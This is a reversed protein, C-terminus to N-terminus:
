CEFFYKLNFNRFNEDILLGSFLALWLVFLFALSVLGFGHIFPTPNRDSRQSESERKAKKKFVQVYINTTQSKYAQYRAFIPITWM